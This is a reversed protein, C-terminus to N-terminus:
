LFMEPYPPHHPGKSPEYETLDPVQIVMKVTCIKGHDETLLELLLIFLAGHFDKRKRMRRDAKDM